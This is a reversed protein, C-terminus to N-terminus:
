SKRLAEQAIPRWERALSIPRAAQANVGMLLSGLRRGEEVWTPVARERVTRFVEM